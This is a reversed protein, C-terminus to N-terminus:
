NRTISMMYIASMMILLQIGISLVVGFWVPTLAFTSCFAWVLLLFLGTIWATAPGYHAEIHGLEPNYKYIPFLSSSYFVPREQAQQFDVFFQTIAFM